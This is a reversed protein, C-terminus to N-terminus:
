VIVLKIILRILVMVYDNKRYDQEDDQGVAVVLCALSKSGTIM